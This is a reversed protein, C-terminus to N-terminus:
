KKLRDEAHRRMREAAGIFEDLAESRPRSRALDLFRTCLDKVAVWDKQLLRLRALEFLVQLHAPDRHLAAELARAADKSDGLDSSIKASLLLLDVDDPAFLLAREVLGLADEFRAEDRARRAQEGLEKGYDELLRALSRFGEDDGARRRADRAARAAQRAARHDPTCDEPTGRILEAASNVVEFSVEIRDDGGFDVSKVTGVTVGAVRVPSGGRLGGVDEFSAHFTTKRRFVNRQNGILFSVTGGVLIAVAVFIGVRLEIRRNRRM